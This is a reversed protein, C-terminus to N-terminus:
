RTLLLVSLPIPNKWSVKFFNKWKLYLLEAPTATISGKHSANINQLILILTSLSSIIRKPNGQLVASSQKKHHYLNL